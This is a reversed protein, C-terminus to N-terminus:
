RLLRAAVGRLTETGYGMSPNGGTLIALSLRTTGRELKAAQHVLWRGVPRWGGKFLVVYRRGLARPIGWRQSPVISRLLHRAYARHRSPVLRDIQIFLRAQDNATIHSNGWAPMPAFRTMGAARAVARLGSPHVIHYIRTAADNDSRRIMPALTARAARSLRRHANRRLYAVLMMAKVVSASRFVRNGHFSRLRGTSDIVAFTVAGRRRRAYSRARAFRRASPVVAATAGPVVANAAVAPAPTDAAAAPAALTGAVLLAGAAALAPAAWAGGVRGRAQNTRERM